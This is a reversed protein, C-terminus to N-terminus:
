VAIALPEVLESLGVEQEVQAIAAAYTVALLNIATQAENLEQLSVGDAKMAKILAETKSTITAKARPAKPEKNLYAKLCDGTSLATITEQVLVKNADESMTALKKRMSGGHKPNSASLIVPTVALIFERYAKAMNRNSHPGQLLNDLEVILSSQNSKAWYYQTVEQSLLALVDWQASQSGGFAVLAARIQKITRVNLTNM